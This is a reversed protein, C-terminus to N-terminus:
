NCIFLFYLKDIIKFYDIIPTIYNKMTELITNCYTRFYNLKCNETM